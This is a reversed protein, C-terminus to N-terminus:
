PLSGTPPSMEMLIQLILFLKEPSPPALLGRTSPVACTLDQPFLRVQSPVCYSTLSIPPSAPPFLLTRPTVCPTQPWSPSTIQLDAQSPAALFAQKRIHTWLPPPSEGPPGTTLFKGALAPVHTRDRTWSSGVHRLAVLGTCWLSQVRM